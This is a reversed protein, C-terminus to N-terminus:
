EETLMEAIDEPLNVGFNREFDAISGYYASGLTAANTTLEM